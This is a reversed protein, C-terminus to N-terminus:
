ATESSVMMWVKRGGHATMAASQLAVGTQYALRRDAALLALRWQSGLTRYLKGMAQYLPALRDARGIRGGHPPNSAWVGRDERGTTLGPADGLAARAVQVHTLVGARDLNSRTAHLAGPDRDSAYLPPASRSGQDQAAARARDFVGEFNAWSACAFARDRGPPWGVAWRAAEAVITGSGCFPDVLPEDRTWGSLRVLAFALDERLPAKATARRYGREHLPAGTADVSWTVRDHHVRVHVKSGEGGPSRRALGARVREEIAKTHFLRSRRSTVRVTSREGAGFDEFPLAGTKKVLTPFDRVFHAGVRVRLTSAVGLNLCLDAM